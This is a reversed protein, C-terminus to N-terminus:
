AAKLHGRIALGTAVALDQGTGDVQGSHIITTNDFVGLTHVPINMKSQLYPGIGKVLAGGGTLIVVDISVPGKGEEPQAQTQLYNISRRLERVIDDVQSQIVKLPPNEPSSPNLLEHMDLVSKGAEADVLELKFANRLADTFANGANPMSRNMVFIGKDVVTVGTTAAGIDVIMYTTKEVERTPDFELLSRYIAFPELEVIGVQIGAKECADIRGAVVDKPASALLVNMQTDSLAGAIEGEVFSEEVSGPVFRAAEYKVSDRLMQPTMKPFPVTRVFVAGGAAAIVAQGSGIHADKLAAKIATGLEEANNVQGDRISDAPTAAWGAKSVRYGGGISDVQAVKIKSHGIDVGVYAKKPGIAM